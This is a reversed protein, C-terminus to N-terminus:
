SGGTKQGCWSIKEKKKAIFLDHIRYGNVLLYDDKFDISFPIDAEDNKICALILKIFDDDAELRLDKARLVGQRGLQDMIYDLVKQHSYVKALRKKFEQM